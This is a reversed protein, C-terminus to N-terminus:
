YFNKINEWRMCDERGSLWGDIERLKGPLAENIPPFHLAPTGCLTVLKKLFAIVSFHKASFNEGSRIAVILIEESSLL